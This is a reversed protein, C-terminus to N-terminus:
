EVDWEGDAVGGTDGCRWDHVRDPRDGHRREDGSGHHRQDDAPREGCEGDPRVNDTTNTTGDNVTVTITATGSAEAVPTITVTRSAGSGGFVIDANAVVGQDSSTGSVTLSAAPTEADGITFAIAGTATDENTAQDTIDSITPPDNVATVTLVFTDTTNTTGDNVTVTITATGSAEAVPTITVTRSAGSGGFVIDANAVVGQDSSTGSVTLSAAPTEVDGITFGIAGTATDENTAQDTIDSITPPDNVANVTLVLTDTTNTTGDNVTVTITATGSAEAVPTITVARSAGSGGFVIDANAVVGQDSSTGSVTLSGPATEIDGITFGIAGTATDENTAQDTIDSITPPDNVATVDVTITNFVLENVVVNDVFVEVWEDAATSDNNYAGVKVTHNGAALQLVFSDNLWGTDDTGGGNGDGIVHALSNNTDNGYWTGDVELVAEGFENSEYGEGMLMRYDLSIRVIAATALNFTKSWAGSTAGGTPGVGLYTRLGGGSLGGAVEYTGTAFAPLSTGFEDDAYTFGEADSTFPANLVSVTSAEISYETGDHVRFDFSTYPTGSAEAVPVFKLNGGTINAKTITDYLNVDGGSLQLAGATELSTIQIHDLPDSDGDSYGLDAEVFTYTTDEPTAVTKDAATPVSNAAVTLTADTSDSITPPDNTTVTAATIAGLLTSATTAGAAIDYTVLYQTPSTNISISLGTFSATSGSFSATGKLTDTADWENATGGDDEYVKVGSAAVDNVDTGTFTVTLDTLTDTGASTSLTFANVANNTSTRSVSKNSPSTGDGVTTTDGAVPKISIGGISWADSGSWTWSMTVSTAGAETSGGGSVESGYLDWRQTQGGGPVLDYDASDDVAVTDFVLEGTASAVSVSASGSGGTASAFTGLPTSQDVGTFTTVGVTTGDASRSLVVDVDDTVADPNVLKWIEIRADGNAETDVLTLGDGNYAVSSVTEGSGLNMSVGVLMLRDTGATTHSISVTSGTTTGTSTNDVAVQGQVISPSTLFVLIAIASTGRRVMRTCAIVFRDAWSTVLRM